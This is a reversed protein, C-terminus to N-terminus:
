HNGQAGNIKELGRVVVSGLGMGGMLLQTPLTMDIAKLQFAVAEVGCFIATVSAICWNAFPQFVYQLGFAFVCVWFLAPKPGAVFFKFFNTGTVGLTASWYGNQAADSAAIAAQKAQEIQQQLIEVQGEAAPDKGTIATRVKVAQDGVSNFFGAILDPLGAM